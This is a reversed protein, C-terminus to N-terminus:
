VVPSAIPDDLKKGKYFPKKLEEFKEDLDMHEVEFSVNKKLTDDRMTKEGGVTTKRGRSKESMEKVRQKNTQLKETKDSELDATEGRHTTGTCIGIEVPWRNGDRVIRPMKGAKTPEVCNGESDVFLFAL